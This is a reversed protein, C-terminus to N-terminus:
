EEEELPAVDAFTSFYRMWAMLVLKKNGQCPDDNWTLWDLSSCGSLFVIMFFHEENGKNKKLSKTPIHEVTTSPYSVFVLVELITAYIPCTIMTLERQFRVFTGTLRDDPEDEKKNFWQPNPLWWFSLLIILVLGPFQFLIWIEPGRKTGRFSREHESKRRQCTCVSRPWPFHIEFNMDENHCHHHHAMSCFFCFLYDVLSGDVKFLLM